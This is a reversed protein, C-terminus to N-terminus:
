NTLDIFNKECSVLIYDVQFLGIQSEHLFFNYM